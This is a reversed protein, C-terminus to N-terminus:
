APVELRELIGVLCEELREVPAFLCSTPSTLLDNVAVMGAASVPRPAILRREIAELVPLYPRLAARRLPAAGPLKRGELEAIVGRLARACGRRERGRTLEEVRWPYRSEFGHGIWFDADRRARRRELWTRPFAIASM